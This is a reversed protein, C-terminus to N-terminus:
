VLECFKIIENPYTSKKGLVKRIKYGKRLVEVVPLAMVKWIKFVQLGSGVVIKM